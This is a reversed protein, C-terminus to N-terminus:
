VRLLNCEKCTPLNCAVVESYTNILSNKIYRKAKNINIINTLPTVRLTNIHKILSYDFQTKDSTHTLRPTVLQQNNRLDRRNPRNTLNNSISTPLKLQFYKWSQLQMEQRYLDKIKLIKLERYLPDCYKSNSILKKMGPGVSLGWLSIGYRLHSNVLSHYLLLKCRRSLSNNFKYLAYRGKNIKSLVKDVHYKWTLRDDILVGLFNFFKENETSGCKIIPIGNLSLNLGTGSFQIMKSKSENITLGNDKMWTSLKILEREAKQKLDNDNSGTIFLTTDDAFQITM